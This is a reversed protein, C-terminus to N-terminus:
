SIYSHSFLLGNGQEAIQFLRVTCIFERAHPPGQESTYDYIPPPWLNKQTMEQLEGVPNGVLSEEDEVEEGNESKVSAPEGGNESFLMVSSFLSFELDFIKDHYLGQCVLGIIKTCNHANLLYIKM